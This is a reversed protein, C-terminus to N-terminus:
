PKDRRGSPNILRVYSSYVHRMFGDNFPGLTTTGLVYTKKDVYGTTADLNRTLVHIRVAVVNAWDTATCAACDSFVDASGDEDTDQGYELKLSQIGEIVPRAAQMIVDGGGMNARMLTPIGDGANVSYNRIYFISSILKRKDAVTTCDKKYVVTGPTGLMPLNAASAVHKPHNICAQTQLYLKSPDYSECNAAGAVCTAAHRVVLVDSDPQLNKVIAACEASLGTGAVYGQVPIAYLNAIYAADWTSFGVCPNPTTTPPTVSPFPPVYTDWFGAHWIEQQLFQITFRGNEIQRNMKSLEANSRSLNLYLALVAVLILLGLTISIMLEILSFGAHRNQM